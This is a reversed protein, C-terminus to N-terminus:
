VPPEPGVGNWQFTTLPLSGAPSAMAFNKPTSDVSIVPVGVLAWVLVKVTWPVSPAPAVAWCAKLRCIPGGSGSAIVEPGHQALPVTPPAYWVWKKATPPPWGHLHDIGARCRGEPRGMSGPGGAPIEPVGTVAPVNGKVTATVSLAPVWAVSGPLMGM